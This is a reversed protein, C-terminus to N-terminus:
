ETPFVEKRLPDTGAAKEEADSFGDGDDDTDANDGIGDGDTDAWEKPDLPFADWPVARARPVGDGDIDMEKHDPTGNGNADDGKGDGDDDADLNDGILDGDRDAQESPDLPFADKADPTGDNDDDTDATNDKGDGDIDPAGGPTVLLALDVKFAPARFTQKGAAADFRKVIAATAPDYWYAKARRPVRLTVDLKEVTKAHDAFHHLYVAARADSALAYARVAKPDSVAVAAMKVNADLRYAFDQMARVYSREQPGFWMNWPHGDRAYSNNWYVFSIECFMGTWNRLRMRLASHPDWTGGAGPPLIGAKRAAPIDPIDIHRYEFPIRRKPDKVCSINNGHENVIVPKGHRKYFKAREAVVLDSDTVTDVRHFWHPTNIDIGKVDPRQWNTCMPHDYPDLSRIYPLLIGFWDDHALKENLLEWFDVMCAWRDVSYKLFRKVREVHAPNDPLPPGELIRQNGLMGYMVRYGYKRACGLLGDVMIAERLRIETLNREIAFSCNRQSFRFLNFGCRGFTRFHVDANQPNNSPSRVFCPGKPLQVKRDLRFPGDMSITDLVSGTGSGDGWCDQTGIPFYPSGDDFVWRHPNAPHRRVFGRAKRRGKVCRFAGAGRARRGAANTFVWTYKWAGVQRPALRAKWLDPRDYVFRTRPRGGQPQERVVKPKRTSGYLFGGVKVKKGAPTTFTVAVDAALHANEYDNDHVFTIEFVDYRAIAKTNQRHTVRLPSPPKQQASAAGAALVLIATALKMRQGCRALSKM